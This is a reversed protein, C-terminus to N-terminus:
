AGGGPRLFSCKQDGGLCRGGFAEFSWSGPRPLDVVDVERLRHRPVEGLHVRLREGAAEGLERAEVSHHERPALVSVDVAEGVPM